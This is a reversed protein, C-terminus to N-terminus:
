DCTVAKSLKDTPSKDIPIKKLCIEQENVVDRIWHYRVDIHQTRCHYIANKSLELVSQSDCNVMYEDQKLGLEQLIRKMWLTEKDAKTLAIYKAETTSLVICKQLKSHWSIAGALLLLCSGQLQNERCSFLLKGM